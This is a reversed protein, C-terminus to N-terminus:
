IHSRLALEAPHPHLYTQIKLYEQDYKRVYHNLLTLPVILPVYGRRYQEIHDLLERKEEKTLQRKFYGMMHQLVNINKKITGKLKLAEMFLREYESYQRHISRHNGQALRKGMLRCHKESHSMVLMKNRAHFDMLRGLSLEQELLNRWRMLAFVSEIFNERLKSDHLRGDDEVPILPFTDMFVRAFLGVGKKVPVGRNDYVNVREMGSSPSKSKFIFGCLNEKELEGVRKKAWRLMHDTHDIKSRATILRPHEPRGILRFSERPIGFGAEVEPCVPVYTVYKGLHDRLFRDLKHGGDYRVSDGLLCRSIGIKISSDRHDYIM